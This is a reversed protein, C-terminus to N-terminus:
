PEHVSRWLESHGGHQPKNRYMRGDAEELLAQLPRDDGRAASIGASLSIGHGQSRLREHVCRKLRAIVRAASEEDTEPM